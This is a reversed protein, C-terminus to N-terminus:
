RLFAVLLAGAIAGIIVYVVIAAVIVAITFVLAKDPAVRAVVPGGLYYVYLSYLGGVLAIIGGVVPIFTFFQAVWSSTPAFAALKMAAIPDQPGGFQPALFEIIKGIVFVGVCALVFGVIAGVIGAVIGGFLLGALLSGIAAIGAMPMVYGRFLEAVDTAEAAVTQWEQAPTLIMGKARSVIDM